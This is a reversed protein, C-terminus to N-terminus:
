PGWSIRQRTWDIPGGGFGPELTAIKRQQSGDALMVWLGWGGERNSVFALYQGDPSWTPLGNDGEQTLQTIPGGVAPVRYVQWHGSRHSMFAVWRGDPSVDPATDSADTTLRVPTGWRDPVQWIGCHSGAGAWYDCGQWVIQWLASWTPYQGFTFRYGAQDDHINIDPHIWIHPGGERRSEFVIRQGEPSCAPLTDSTNPFAERVRGQEWVIVGELGAKTGDAVLRGPPQLCFDPQAAGVYLVQPQSGDGNRVQIQYDHIGANWVAYAIHGQLPPATPTPSPTPTAPPRTPKPKHTPKPKPTATPTFTATPAAAVISAPNVKVSNLITEYVPEYVAAETEPAAALILFGDQGAKIAVLEGFFSIGLLQAQMRQRVADVDELAMPQREGAQIDQFIFRAEQLLDDLLTEPSQDPKLDVLHRIQIRKLQDPSTFVVDAGEQGKQWDAPVLLRFVGEEGEFPVLILPSVATGPGSTTTTTTPTPSPSPHPTSTATPTSTSTPSPTATLTPIPPAVTPSAPPLVTIANVAVPPAQRGPLSSLWTQWPLFVYGLGAIVLFIMVALVWGWGQRKGKAVPPEYSPPPSLSPPPPTEPLSAAAYSWVHEYERQSPSWYLGQKLAKAFAIASRYRHRPEKALARLLAFAVGKPLHPNVELPPRPPEHLIKHMLLLANDAQYPLEGTLMRYAVVGLSYVDAEPGLEEEGRVQEPSMYAPTGITAGTMTVRTEEKAIQKAIGFDMIMVRGTHAAIILNGPKIDRHVFGRQHAYALGSAVQRLIEVAQVPDMPGPQEKLIQALTKGRVFEMAIYHRGDAEGVEYTSVINPHDLQVAHAGERLFRKLFVPDHAFYPPLVKLAVERGSRTDVARYVVAMGGRGVEELIQYVGIREVTPQM